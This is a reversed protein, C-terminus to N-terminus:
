NEVAVEETVHLMQQVHRNKFWKAALRKTSYATPSPSLSITDSARGVM